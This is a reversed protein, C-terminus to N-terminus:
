RALRAEVTAAEALDLEPWRAPPIRHLVAAPILGVLERRFAEDRKSVADDSRAALAM